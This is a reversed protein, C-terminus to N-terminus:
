RIRPKARATPTANAPDDPWVHKPYRGRMEAKVGAWSGSWFKPLDRTIQIPRHAPSLLNLTLPLRGNAIAPHAKLGFLEQVRISLAPAGPGEYDVPFSNGTPATFHTPAETELRRRLDWPILGDLAQGLVDPSIDSVRTFNHLFPALWERVSAALAGDSLDPWSADGAQRVFAVRDRLQRQHKSWPLSDVGLAAIGEALIAAVDSGPTVSLAETSLAIAGLHRVRRGRVARAAKDFVLESRDGIRDAAVSLLESEELAAALLIRTAAAAGSMEAVVLYPEGALPDSPDIMAARGNALLFQGRSGRAKAIREPYALALLSAPTSKESHSSHRASEGIRITATRAWAAALRRMDEARRSRDHRFAALKHALDVDSGGLGREVIVAAIEATLLAEGRRAGEIVMHALRPPLPLARLMRGAETIRGDADLAGVLQLEARAADVAASPPPDLWTL